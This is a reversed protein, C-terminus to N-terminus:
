WDNGVSERLISLEMKHESRRLRISAMPAIRDEVASTRSQSPSLSPCRPPRKDRILRQAASVGLELCIEDIHDRNRSATVWVRICELLEEADESCGDRGLDHEISPHVITLKIVLMSDPDAADEVELESIDVRTM